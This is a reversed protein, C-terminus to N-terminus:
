THSLRRHNLTLLIVVAILIAAVLNVSLLSSRTTM